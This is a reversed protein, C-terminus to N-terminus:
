VLIVPSESFPEPTFLPSFPEMLVSPLPEEVLMVPLEVLPLPTSLVPVISVVLPPEVLMLPLDVFPLPTSLLPEMEVSPLPEEVLM